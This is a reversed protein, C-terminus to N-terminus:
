RKALLLTNTKNVKELKEIEFKNKYLYSAINIIDCENKSDLSANFLINGNKSTAAVINKWFPIEFFPSPIETDIFLDVIILDFISKNYRMFNSADDCIIELNKIESLKFEEKAIEVIVTDIDVGIISKNNRNIKGLTKIVSGGGLGLVLVKNCESLDMKDLGFKLIKQLSGYSYNANKTNLLKKGNYWTIELTGNFSSKVKKTIPYIFSLLRKM